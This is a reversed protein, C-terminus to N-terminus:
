GERCAELQEAMDNVLERHEELEQLLMLGKVARPSVIDSKVKKHFYGHAFGMKNEFEKISMGM